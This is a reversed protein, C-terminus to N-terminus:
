KKKPYFRDQQAKHLARIEDVHVPTYETHEVCVCVYQGEPPPEFHIHGHVNLVDEKAWGRQETFTRQHVPIHTLVLGLEKLNRWTPHIEEFVHALGELQHDHNGPILRKRGNLRMSLLLFNSIDGFFVDGLHYVKDKPKVVSNWRDIMTENMEELSAFPRGPEFHTITKAHYFHTDSIIFKEAM